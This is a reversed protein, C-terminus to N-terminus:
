EGLNYRKKIWKKVYTTGHECLENYIEKATDMEVKKHIETFVNGLDIIINTLNEVLAKNNITLEDLEDRMIKYDKMFDAYVEEVRKEREKHLDDIDMQNLKDKATLGEIEERQRNIIALAKQKVIESCWTVGKLPCKTSSSYCPEKQSCYELAEIVDKENFEKENM